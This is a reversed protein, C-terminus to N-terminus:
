LLKFMATVNKASQKDVDIVFVAREYNGMKLEKILITDSRM